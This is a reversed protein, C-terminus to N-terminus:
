TACTKYLFWTSLACAAVSGLRLFLPADQLALNGTFLRIWIAVMPPHDFYNWQLHQSYLWYYAEDNGLELLGAFLLHVLAFFIILQITKKQFRKAMSTAAAEKLYATNQTYYFLSRKEPNFM